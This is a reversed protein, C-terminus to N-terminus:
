IHILALTKWHKQNYHVGQVVCSLYNSPFWATGETTMNVRVHDGVNYGYYLIFGSLEQAGARLVQAHLYVQIKYEECPPMEWLFQCDSLLRMRVGTWPLIILGEWLSGFLGSWDFCFLLFSINNNGKRKTPRFAVVIGGERDRRRPFM